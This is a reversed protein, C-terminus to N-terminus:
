LTLRNLLCITSLPFACPFKALHPRHLLGLRSLHQFVPHRLRNSCHRHYHPAISHHSGFSNKTTWDHCRLKLQFPRTRSCQTSTVKILWPLSIHFWQHNFIRIQFLSSEKFGIFKRPTFKFILLLPRRLTRSSVLTSIHSPLRSPMVMKTRSIVTSIATSSKTSMSSDLFNLHCLQLRNAHVTPHSSPKLSPLTNIIQLHTLKDVIILIKFKCKQAFCFVTYRVDIYCLLTLRYGMILSFIPKKQEHLISFIFPISFLNLRSAAFCRILFPPVNDTSAFTISAAREVM